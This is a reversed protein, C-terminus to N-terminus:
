LPGATQTDQHVALPCQHDSAKDAHPHRASPGSASGAQVAHAAAFCQSMFCMAVCYLTTAWEVLFSDYFSDMLYLVSGKPRDTLCLICEVCMGNVLFVNVCIHALLYVCLDSVYLCLVCVCM